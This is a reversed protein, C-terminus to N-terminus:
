SEEDLELQHYGHALDLASFMVAGDLDSLIDDLTPTVHREREIAKNAETMDVCIRIKTNDHPKTTVVTPSVWPTPGDVPEIIDMEVLYKLEKEVPVRLHLPIRRHTNAVPKVSRDIHLKVSFDKLKGIGSFLRPFKAKVNLISSTDKQVSMAMSQAMHMLGLKSAMKGSLLNGGDGPCIYATGAVTHANHSIQVQLAGKLPLPDKSNYTFIKVSTAALQPKGLRRYTKRDLLTVTSGSDAIVPINVNNVTVEFRASQLGKTTIQFANEDESESDSNEVITVNAREKQKAPHYSKTQQKLISSNSQVARERRPSRCLHEFHHINLCNSCQHFRAPCTSLRQHFQGGCFSCNRRDTPQKPQNITDHQSNKNRWKPQDRTPKNQRMALATQDTEREMKNAQTAAADLARAKTLTM